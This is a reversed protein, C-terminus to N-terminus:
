HSRELVIFEFLIMGTSSTHPRQPRVVAISFLIVVILIVIILVVYIIVRRASCQASPPVIVRVFLDQESLGLLCLSCM